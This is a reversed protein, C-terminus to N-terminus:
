IWRVQNLLWGDMNICVNWVEIRNVKDCAKELDTFMCYINKSVKMYKANGQPLALMQNYHLLTQLLTVSEAYLWM